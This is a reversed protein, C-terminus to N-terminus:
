QRRTARPRPAQPATQPRHPLMEIGLAEADPAAAQDAPFGSADSSDLLARSIAAVQGSQPPQSAATGLPLSPRADRALAAADAAPRLDPTHRPVTSM